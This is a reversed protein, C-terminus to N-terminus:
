IHYAKWTWERKQQNYSRIANIKVKIGDNLKHKGILAPPIFVDEVFGFAKGSPVKINGEIVKMYKDKMAQVETLEATILRYAGENNGSEFRVKMTDGVELKDVFREYKFFGFRSDSAIFNAIKKDTNVFEILVAEEPIDSYLLKEAEPAKDKYFKQNSQKKLANIYAPQAMWTQVLSPIPWGQATRATTLLEIETRAEDWRQKEILWAALKQRINILFDDTTRCLLARCLCAIRKHEDHPFAESLVDWVWFDNRKRKAFPLIASLANENSGLALLLKAKYYSPYQLDPHVELLNELVLLFANVKDKDFIKEGTPLIKPLLHKAYAIYVQEAFSMYEKGNPLREKAFDDETIHDLGWWDIVPIYMDSLKFIKHLAKGLFSYAESPKTFSFSNVLRFLELPKARDLHEDKSLAFIVKGIQWALNDFLMKEDPPLQLSAIERLRTIFNDYHIADANQKVYDYLVWSINRKTWINNPDADLEAKAMAYAEDTNGARRLDKIENAPMIM